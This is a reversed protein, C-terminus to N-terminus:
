SRAWRPRPSLLRPPRRAHLADRPTRLRRPVAHGRPRRRLSRARRPADHGDDRPRDRAPRGVCGRPGRAGGRARPRVPRAPAPAGRDRSRRRHDSPASAQRDPVARAPRERAGRRLRVRPRCRRARRRPAAPAGVRLPRLLRAGGRRGRRPWRDLAGERDDALGRRLGHGRRDGRQDARDHRGADLGHARSPSRAQRQRRRDGRDGRGRGRPRAHPTRGGRSRGHDASRLETPTRSTMPLSPPPSFPLSQPGHADHADPGLVSLRRTLHHGIPSARRTVDRRGAM